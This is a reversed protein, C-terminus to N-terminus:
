RESRPPPIQTPEPTRGPGQPASSAAATGGSETQKRAAALREALSSM